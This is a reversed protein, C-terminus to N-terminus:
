IGNNGRGSGRGRGRGGGEFLVRRRRAEWGAVGFLLVAGASCAGTWLQAGLIGGARLELVAAVPTSILFGVGAFAYVMGLRTGYTAMDHCLYPLVIAPLTSLMGSAFAYVSGWIIFTKLSHIAIWVFGLIATTLQAILILTEPGLHHPHFDTLYSPILRGFFQSTNLIPILYFSMDESAHLTQTSFTPGLFFPVLIAAFSLFAASLFSLYPKEKFARPDILQRRSRPGLPKTILIAITLTALAVFGMSRVAWPFSLTSLLRRFIIPYIIGGISGGGTALGLALGRRNKFYVPIIAISPIYLLGGSIGLLLGQSLFIQYYQTSLSLLM